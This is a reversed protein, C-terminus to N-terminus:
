YNGMGLLDQLIKVMHYSLASQEKSLDKLKKRSSKCTLCDCKFETKSETKFM